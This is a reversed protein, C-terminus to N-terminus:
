LSLLVTRGNEEQELVEPFHMIEEVEVLTNKRDELNRLYQGEYELVIWPHDRNIVKKAGRLIMLEAGQADVKMGALRESAFYDDLSIKRVPLSKVHDEQSYLIISSASNGWRTSRLIAEGSTDSVCYPMVKVNRIQNLSLNSLLVKRARPDPEFAYVIGEQGVLFSLLISYTGLWAGIDVVTSSKKTLQIIIEIQRPEWIGKELQRWVHNFQVKFTRDIGPYKIQIITSIGIRWLVLRFFDSLSLGKPYKLRLYERARAREM